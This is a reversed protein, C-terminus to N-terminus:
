FLEKKISYYRNCDAGGFQFKRHTWAEGSLIAHTTIARVSLAGREMM